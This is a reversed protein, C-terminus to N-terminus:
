RVSLPLIKCGFQELKLWNMSKFQIQIVSDGRKVEVTVVGGNRLHMHMEIDDISRFNLANITGFLLLEDNKIFGAIKAPWGHKVKTVTAFVIQPQPGKISTLLKSTYYCNLQELRKIIFQRKEELYSISGRVQQIKLIDTINIIREAVDALGLGYNSLIKGQERIQTELIAILSRLRAIELPINQESNM